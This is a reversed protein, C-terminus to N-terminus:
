ALEIAAGVHDIRGGAAGADADILRRLVIALQRDADVAVLVVQLGAGHQGRHQLADVQRDVVGEHRGLVAGPLRADGAEPKGLVPDAPREVVVVLRQDGGLHLGLDVLGLLVDDAALDLHDVVRRRLAARVSGARRGKPTVRGAGRGSRSPPVGKAPAAGGGATSSTPMSLRKPGTCALRLTEIAIAFPVIWPMMPSFPAPLDVSILM